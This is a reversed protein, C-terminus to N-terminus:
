RRGKITEEEKKNNRQTSNSNWPIMSSWGTRFMRACTINIKRFEIQRPPFPTPLHETFSNLEINLTINISQFSNM